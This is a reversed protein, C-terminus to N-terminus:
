RSTGFLRHTITESWRAPPERYTPDSTYLRVVGLSLVGLVTVVSVLGIIAEWSRSRDDTM